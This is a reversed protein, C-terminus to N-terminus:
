GYVTTRWPFFYFNVIKLRVSLNFLKLRKNPAHIEPFHNLNIWLDGYNVRGPIQLLQCQSLLVSFRFYGFLSFDSLVDFVKVRLYMRLQIRINGFFPSTIFSQFIHLSSTFPTWCPISSISPGGCCAFLLCTGWKELDKWYFIKWANFNWLKSSLRFVMRESFDFYTNSSPNFFACLLIIFCWSCLTRNSFFIIFFFFVLIKPIKSCLCSIWLSFSCLSSHIIFFTRSFILNKSPSTHKLGSITITGISWYSLASFNRTIGFNLNLGPLFSILLSIRRATLDAAGPCNSVASKSFLNRFTKSLILVELMRFFIVALLFFSFSFFSIFDDVLFITELIFYSFSYDPM